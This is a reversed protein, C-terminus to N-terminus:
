KILDSKKLYKKRTGNNVVCLKEQMILYHFMRLSIFDMLYLYSSDYFYISLGKHTIYRGSYKNLFLTIM